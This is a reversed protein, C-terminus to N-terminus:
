PSPHPLPPIGCFPPCVPAHPSTSSVENLASPLSSPLRSSTIRWSPTRRPHHLSLRITPNKNILACSGQRGKCGFVYPYAQSTQDPAAAFGTRTYLVKPAVTLSLSGFVLPADDTIESSDQGVLLKFSDSFISEVSEEQDMSKVCEKVLVWPSLGLRVMTPVMFDPTVHHVSSVTLRPTLV